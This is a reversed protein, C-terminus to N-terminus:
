FLHIRIECYIFRQANLRLIFSDGSKPLAAVGAEIMEEAWSPPLPRLTM